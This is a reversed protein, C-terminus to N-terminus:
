ALRCLLTSGSKSAPVPNRRKRGLRGAVLQRHLLGRGPSSGGYYEALIGRNFPVFARTYSDGGTNRWLLDGGAGYAEDTTETQSGDRGRQGLANYTNTSIATGGGNLVKVPHAEADWQCANTGDGTLNGAVDHYYGGVNGNDNTGTPWNSSQESCVSPVTEEYYSYERRSYAWNTGTSTGLEGVVMQLRKNYFYTEQGISCSGSPM